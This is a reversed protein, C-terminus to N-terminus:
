LGFRNLNQPAPRRSAAAHHGGTPDIRSNARRAVSPSVGRFKVELDVVESGSLSDQSKTLFTCVEALFLVRRLGMSVWSVEGTKPALTM